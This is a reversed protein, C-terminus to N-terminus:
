FAHVGVSRGRRHVGRGRSGRGGAVVVAPAATAAVAGLVGDDNGGRLTDESEQGEGNVGRDAVCDVVDPARVDM